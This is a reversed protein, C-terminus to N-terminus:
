LADPRPCHLAPSADWRELLRRRIPLRLTALVTLETIAAQAPSNFELLTGNRLLVQTVLDGFSVTVTAAAVPGAFILWIAAVRLSCRTSLLSTLLSM